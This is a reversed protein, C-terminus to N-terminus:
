CDYYECQVLGGFAQARAYLSGKFKDITVPLSNAPLIFGEQPTLTTDLSADLAERNSSFWVPVPGVNQIIVQVFRSDAQVIMQSSGPSSSPSPALPYRV